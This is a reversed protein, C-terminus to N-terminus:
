WKSELWQEAASCAVLHLWDFRIKGLQQGFITNILVHWATFRESVQALAAEESQM